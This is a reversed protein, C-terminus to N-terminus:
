AATRGPSSAAAARVGSSRRPRRARRRRTSPSATSTSCSAPPASARPACRSSGLALPATWSAVWQSGDWGVAPECGQFGYGDTDYIAKGVPGDLVAGATTVRTGYAASAGGVCCNNYRDWLVFFGSGSSAVDPHVEYDAATALNFVAGQPALAADFIRGRVDDAGSFWQSWTVLYRGGAWAASAGYPTYPSGGPSFLGKPTADILTGDAAIRAGYVWATAGNWGTFFVAWGNGDSAVDGFTGSAMDPMVVIPQSDLLTGDAAVRVALLADTYYFETSVQGVWAVLWASGNWAVRPTSQLGGAMTVAFPVPDLPMGLPDLRVAFLDFGSQQGSTMPSSRQDQWVALISDSGASLVPTRQDGAAAAVLEDGPLSAPRSVQAAATAVISLSLALALSLTLAPKM